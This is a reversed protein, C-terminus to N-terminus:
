GSMRDLAFGEQYYRRQPKGPLLGPFRRYLSEAFMFDLHANSDPAVGTVAEWVSRSEMCFYIFPPRESQRLKAYIYRYMPLRVPRAYRMKGDTGRILEAYPITTHPYRAILKDKMAPPYRLTGLSLWAIQDASVWNYLEDVVNGYLPRWEPHSLIPDLHFALKYGAEAARAAAKLRPILDATKLEHATIIEQPNLSWALVTHGGHHLDLLRDVNTTKTKLELVANPIKSFVRIAQEAFLESGTLALSDGLEGTGIRFFRRPQQQLKTRLEDFIEEFNTYLVTAPQNLYFQLICYSCHLPCNLTQNIVQYHCCLYSEATGPCGKVVAGRSRTLLLVRKADLGRVAKNIDYNDPVVTQIRVPFHKLITATVADQLASETIFVRQFRHRYKM